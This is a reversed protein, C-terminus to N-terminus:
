VNRECREIFNGRRVGLCQFPLSVFSIQTSKSATRTTSKVSKEDLVCSITNNNNKEDMITSNGNSDSEINQQHSNEYNITGGTSTTTSTNVNNSAAATVLAQISDMNKWTITKSLNIETEDFQFPHSKTRM